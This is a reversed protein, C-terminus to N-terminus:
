SNRVYLNNPNHTRINGNEVFEQIDLAKAVAITSIVTYFQEYCSEHIRGLGNCTLSIHVTSQPLGHNLIHSIRERAQHPTPAVKAWEEAFLLQSILYQLWLKRREMATLGITVHYLSLMRGWVSHGIRSPIIGRSMSWGLLCGVTGCSMGNYLGLEMDLLVKDYDLQEEMITQGQQNRVVGLPLKDFRLVRMDWLETEAATEEFTECLAEMQQLQKLEDETYLYKLTPHVM